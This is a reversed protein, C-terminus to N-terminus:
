NEKKTQLEFKRIQIVTGNIYEIEPYEPISSKQTELQYMLNKAYVSFEDFNTDALKAYYFITERRDQLNLPLEKTELLEKGQISLRIAHRALKVRKSEVRGIREFQQKAYGLYSNRIAVQGLFSRRRAKLMAGTLHMYSSEMWLQELISPNGKLALNCFKGVEHFTADPDNTVVSNAVVKPGKLGMVEEIPAVYVGLIDVDSSETALGHSISGAVGELIIKGPVKDEFDSM